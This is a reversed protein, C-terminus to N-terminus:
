GGGALVVKIGSDGYGWLGAGRQNVVRGSVSYSPVPKSVTISGQGTRGSPDSATVTILNEGLALPVTASWTHDCPYPYGLLECWSVTQSANGSNGTTENRWYVTVGTIEEASGSGGSWTPSIFASGALFVSNCVTSARPESTPATITVFGGDHRDTGTVPIGDDSCGSAGLGSMLLALFMPLGFHPHKM